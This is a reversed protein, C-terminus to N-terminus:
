AAVGRALPHLRSSRARDDARVGRADGDCQKRFAATFIESTMPEARMEEVRRAVQPQELQDRRRLGVRCDDLGNAIEGVMMEALADDDGLVRGVEDAVVDRQVADGPREIRNRAALVRDFFDIGDRTRRKAPRAARRKARHINGADVHQSM